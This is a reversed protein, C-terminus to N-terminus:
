GNRRKVHWRCELVYTVTAITTLNYVSYAFLLNVFYRGWSVKLVDYVESIL